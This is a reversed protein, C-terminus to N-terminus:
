IVLSSEPFRNGRRASFLGICVLNGPSIRGIWWSVGAAMLLAIAGAMAAARLLGYREQLKRFFGRAKEAKEILEFQGEAM